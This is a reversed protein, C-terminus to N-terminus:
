VELVITGYNLGAGFGTLVIKKNSGLVIKKNETLENFLIPITGSSTNGYKEINSAIKEIPYKLKKSMAELIRFNAQHPVIMDVEDFDIDANQLTDKINQPVLSTVFKFVDKGNMYMYDFDEKEKKNFCNSVSSKGLTISDWKDSSTELKESFLRHDKEVLMCGAGDGFLISTSRDNWDVAKSMTEGSVVLIRKYQESLMKNAITLAYIFGTCASSIDFSIANSAGINNQVINATSPTLYDPTITSLIIVDITDPDINYKDLMSKVAKTCIDSTNEELSIYRQAIGTRTKIWEDNTDLIKELDYNTVIHNPVYAGTGIIKM